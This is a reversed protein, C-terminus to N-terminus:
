KSAKNKLSKWLQYQTRATYFAIGADACAKLVEARKAKPMGDAIHWVLKTPKEVASERLLNHVGPKATTKSSKTAKAPKSTRKASKTAAKAAKAANNDSRKRDAKLAAATSPTAVPVAPALDPATRTDILEVKGGDLKRLECSLLSLGASKMARKANSLNSYTKFTSTSM